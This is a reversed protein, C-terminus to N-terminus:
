SIDQKSKTEASCRLVSRVSESLSTSVRGSQPTRVEALCAEAWTAGEERREEGLRLVKQRPAAATAQRSGELPWMRYHLRKAGRGQQTHESSRAPQHLKIPPNLGRSTINCPATLHSSSVGVQATAEARHM